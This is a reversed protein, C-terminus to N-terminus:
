PRDGAHAAVLAALAAGPDATSMISTGVLVADYGIQAM